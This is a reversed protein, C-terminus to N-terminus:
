KVGCAKLINQYLKLEYDYETEINGAIMEAFNIMMNDYRNFLKSEKMDSDDAFEADDQVERLKSRTFKREEPNKIDYFEIPRIEITGKTGCVVLQRRMFGGPELASTKVLSAGNEYEFVAMGFDISDVKQYNISKNYPTISEPMGQIKLVIDILHCGLYFMMGGPLNKLWQRKEKTHFCNMHAEVSYVDGIEGNKIRTLARQIVPNFRYMYGVSLALNKKEAIDILDTFEEESLGGPKDMHIHLGCKAARTAYRTLNKEETEVIVGDLENCNLVEDITMQKLGLDYCKQIKESHLGKEEEPLAFGKVEFIDNLSLVSDLIDMAHDHGVGIQIIKFKEM